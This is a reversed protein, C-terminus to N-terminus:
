GLNGLICELGAMLDRRAAEPMEGWVRVLLDRSIAEFVPRFAKAKETPRVMVVRSDAPDKECVVYGAAVLKRVLTTVTNKKRGILTALRGMPLGGQRYLRALISGHSPVLGTVGRRTLEAIVFANARERIRAIRDIVMDTDM